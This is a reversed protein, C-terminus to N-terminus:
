RKFLKGTNLGNMLESGNTLDSLSIGSSIGGLNSSSSASGVTTIENSEFSNSCQNCEQIAKDIAKSTITLQKNFVPSLNDTYGGGGGGRNADNPPFISSLSCARTM